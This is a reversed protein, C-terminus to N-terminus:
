DIVLPVALKAGATGITAGTLSAAAAHTAGKRLPKILWTHIAWLAVDPETAEALEAESM